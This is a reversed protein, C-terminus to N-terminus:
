PKDPCSPQAGTGQLLPALPALDARAGCLASVYAQARAAVKNRQTCATGKVIDRDNLLFCADVLNKIMALGASGLYAQMPHDAGLSRRADALPPEAGGILSEIEALRQDRGAAPDRPTYLLAYAQDNRILGPLATTFAYDRSGPELGERRASEAAARAEDYKRLRWYAMAKLALASGYLRDARLRNVAEDDGQLRGLSLIVSTYGAEIAAPADSNPQLRFQNERAAAENFANQADRLHNVHTTACGAFTFALLLAATCIRIASPM